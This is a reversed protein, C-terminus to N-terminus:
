ADLAPCRQAANRATVSRFAAALQWPVMEEGRREKSATKIELMTEELPGLEPDTETVTIPPFPPQLQPTPMTVLRPVIPPVAAGPVFEHVDDEESTRLTPLALTIAIPRSDKRSASVTGPVDGAAASSIFTGSPTPRPRTKVTAVSDLAKERERGRRDATRDLLEGAVPEAETVREPVPVACRSLTEEDSPTRTPAVAASALRPPDHFAVVENTQL